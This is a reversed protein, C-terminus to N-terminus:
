EDSLGLLRARLAQTPPHPGIFGALMQYALDKDTFDGLVRDNALVRMGTSTIIYTTTDGVKVPPSAAVLREFDGQDKPDCGGNECNRMEGNRYAKEVDAKSGDHVYQLRIVKPGASAFIQAADHSPQPLYLGVVYVKVNLITVTRVALGNLVLSQGGATYRDPFTVGDLTAARATWAAATLALVCGLRGFWGVAREGM